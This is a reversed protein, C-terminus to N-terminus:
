EMITTIEKSTPDSNDMVDIVKEIELVITFLPTTTTVEL